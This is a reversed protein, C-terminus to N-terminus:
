EVRGSYSMLLRLSSTFSPAQSYELLVQSGWIPLPCAQALGVQVVGASSDLSLGLSKSERYQYLPATVHIIFISMFGMVGSVRYIAESLM